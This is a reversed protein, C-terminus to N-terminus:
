RYGKRILNLVFLCVPLLWVIYSFVDGRYVNYSFFFHIPFLANEIHLVGMLHCMFMAIQQHFLFFIATWVCIGFLM